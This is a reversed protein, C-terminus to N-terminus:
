CCGPQSAKLGPDGALGSGAPIVHGTLCDAMLDMM